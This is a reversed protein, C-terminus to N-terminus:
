GNPEYLRGAKRFVEVIRHDKRARELLPNYRVNSAPLTHDGAARFMYEFFKDLDGLTLYIFGAYSSNAWGAGRGYDLKDIMEHATKEDGTLASLLGRNLYTVQLNPGIREMESVANAAQAYDGKSAYYDFMYRLTGYRNLHITKKSHDLLQEERGAFLYYQGLYRIVDPDLPDLQYAKECSNVMESTDGAAASAHALELYADALSPNLEIAKRLEEVCKSHEDAMFMIEAQAYHAEALDPDIELAKHSADRGKDIAEQFSVHGETALIEYGTAIGVYARAFRPDRTLAQQFFALANRLPGEELQNLLQKGQLFDTYAMTDATAKKEIAQRESDLLKVKLEGAVREAIDSQVAFIDDLDKDYHSSWLHKETNANILQATVRIRNGVKRVSGEVLAGAKLERGIQSASKKEGKYNMISTRSIVGLERVQCLRDIVEETLGDAFYEDNPDPSMSAFPLVAVTRSDLGQVSDSEMSEWPMLVKYVEVPFSVGKMARPELRVMELPIKNRVQGYVQDSVCIGEPEALPQLRSAINVADGLIDDGSRVVDGLHVGIRLTIKWQDRSSTNYDHLFRQIEVACNTADLASEFEVLFSDGMVKIEKGHFKPFFPRLLRNHRDLVELSQSENSQTLATYGVMDTFMIAVLRRQGQFM